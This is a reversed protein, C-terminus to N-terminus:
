RLRQCQQMTAAVPRVRAHHVRRAAIESALQSPGADSMRWGDRVLGLRQDHDKGGVPNGVDDIEELANACACNM